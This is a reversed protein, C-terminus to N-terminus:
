GIVSQWSSKQPELKDYVALVDDATIKPRRSLKLIEESNLETLFGVSSVGQMSQMILVVVRGKCKRCQLFLCHENEGQSIVKIQEPFNQTNCVPCTSIIKLQESPPFM